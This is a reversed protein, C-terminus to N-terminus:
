SDERLVAVLGRVADAECYPAVWEDLVSDFALDHSWVDIREANMDLWYLLAALVTPATHQDVPGGSISAEIEDIVEVRLKLRAGVSVVDSM